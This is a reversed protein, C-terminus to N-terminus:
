APKADDAVVKRYLMYIYSSIWIITFAGLTLLVLPVTPVWTIAPWLGKIWSDLMIIPIMVVAWVVAVTVFMWILRFIIRLRRGIVLDGATKLAQFPYMGPLTVIVLAFFTSSIWYLSIMALLGAVTWFLM